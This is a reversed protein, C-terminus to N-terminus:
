RSVRNGAIKTTESRGAVRALSTGRWFTAQRTREASSNGCTPAAAYDAPGMPNCGALGLESKGTTAGLVEVYFRRASDLELVTMTSMGSFAVFAWALDPPAAVYHVACGGLRLEYPTVPM